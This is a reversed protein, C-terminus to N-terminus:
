DILVNAFVLRAQFMDVFKVLARVIRGLMEIGFVIATRLQTIQRVLTLLQLLMRIFDFGHGDIFPAFFRYLTRSGHCNPINERLFQFIEELPM